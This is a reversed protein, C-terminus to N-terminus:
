NGKDATRDSSAKASDSAEASSAMAEESYILRFCGQCQLLARHRLRTAEQSTVTYYCATCSNNKVPVVPNAVRAKMISYKERWEDPVKAEIPAREALKANVSSQLEAIEQNLRATSADNEEKRKAFVEEAAALEKNANELKNWLDLLKQEADAEETQLTQIEAQLAMMEKYNTAGQLANKKAREAVGIEKMILEQEDVLKKYDRVKRKTEDLTNDAEQLQEVLNSVEQKCAAIQSNIQNIAQDFHVLELLAQFPQENM